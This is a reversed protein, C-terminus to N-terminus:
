TWGQELEQKRAGCCSKTPSIPWFRLNTAALEVNKSFPLFKLLCTSRQAGRGPRPCSFSFDVARDRALFCAERLGPRLCFLLSGETGAAPCCPFSWKIGAAPLFVFARCNPRSFLLIHREAM